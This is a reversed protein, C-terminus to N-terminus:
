IYGGDELSVEVNDNVVSSDLSSSVFGDVSVDVDNNCSVM